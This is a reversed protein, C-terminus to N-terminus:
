QSSARQHRRESPSEVAAWRVIFVGIRHRPKLDCPAEIITIPRVCGSSSAKCACLNGGNALHADHCGMVGNPYHRAGSAVAVGLERETGFIEAFAVTFHIGAGQCLDRL